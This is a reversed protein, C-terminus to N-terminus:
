YRRTGSRRRRLRVPTSQNAHADLSAIYYLDLEVQSDYYPWGGCARSAAMFAVPNLLDPFGFEDSPMTFTGARPRYHIKLDLVGTSGVLRLANDRFEWYRMSQSPLANVPLHDIVKRMETWSEGNHAREWVRSISVINPIAPDTETTLVTTGARIEEIVVEQNLTQLGQNAMRLVITSYASQVMEKLRTDTLVLDPKAMSVLESTRRLCANLLDSM